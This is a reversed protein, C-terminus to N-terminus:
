GTGLSTRLKYIPTRVHTVGQRGHSNHIFGINATKQEVSPM